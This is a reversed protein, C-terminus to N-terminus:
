RRGGLPRPPLPPEVRIRADLVLAGREHVTLPNLDLEAVAPLDEALASVRLLADEVAGVDAPPRGRYGTLLPHSKLKRVMDAAEAADLPALGVSVDRLLEVLVGGAGCAVVPGFQPDQVFGVIMEVGRTAMKQVLFGRPPRGQARLATEMERTASRVSEADPLDLRVAGAETKHLLGPTVAKLAVPWGLVAAAAATEDADATERQEVMPLGYCGLLSAAETPTLWGPGRALAGAVLAAAEDHRIDERRPAPTRPQDRWEGYRVARALAIAASEPFEYCPVRLSPEQLRQRLGGASMMVALMPKRRELERAVQLIAAAVEPGLTLLPPIFIVILADINPDEAVARLAERYHFATASAVLDVPNAIGAEPSLFGRLRAQTAEALVPVILGEAECADACLIAPGGANTVIGVRPGRPPPQSGLLSAVDFLQELTDTRIVGSQRFLADVTADSAAILAGTHSSTARAGARSRGSKVVAIPKRRGVQRALRFFRRPNGFSELYLLILHTRPDRAWYAVLDNGSLDAKNGVSVFSSIGLGLSTALDIVALGLAGSQSLFGVSGAPPALPAFTANLRVAPDTNAVGMCNPGVLRMGAARCVRVLESQRAAGDGGTEAFGASIVVLGRVGKAACQRAAEVVREAPVVLIALNVEGPVAALSPYAAVSQVVEAAPNVPYVPGAFGYDILNHFIEGGITGRRRSAGIVAVSRPHLFAALAGVSAVAEREDFRERAAPTLETPFTVLLSGPQAHVQLAFGSKRFMELMRHNHPLVDAEFVEIGHAGAVEALQGLLLTGLGQGQYSEAVAFAVEARGPEVSVYQGHAVIRAEAGAVAVLGFSREYDVVAEAKAIGALFDERPITFFRLVRSDDSLGQLFQLLGGEDDRRVPRVRVTSGDRLVVDAERHSPYGPSTLDPPM